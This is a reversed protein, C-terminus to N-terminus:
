LSTQVNKIQMLFQPSHTICWHLIMVSRYLAPFKTRYNRKARQNNNSTRKKHHFENCHPQWYTEETGQEKLSKHSPSINTVTNLMPACVFKRLRTRSVAKHQYRAESIKHGQFHARCRRGFCRNVKLLCFEEYGGSHSGWIRCQVKIGLNRYLHCSFLITWGSYWYVNLLNTESSM